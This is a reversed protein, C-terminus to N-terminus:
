ATAKEQIDHLSTFNNKQQEELATIIMVMSM